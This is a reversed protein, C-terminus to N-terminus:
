VAFGKLWEEGREGLRAILEEAEGEELGDKLVPEEAELSVVLGMVKLVYTALSM